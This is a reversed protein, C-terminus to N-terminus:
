TTTTTDEPPQCPDSKGYGYTLGDWSVGCGNAWNYKACDDYSTFDMNLHQDGAGATCTGLDHVNVCKAGDGKLDIWYDPCDGILPPWEIESKSSYLTIIILIISIVLLIGMVMLVTGQFNPM